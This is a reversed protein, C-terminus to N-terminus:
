GPPEMPFGWEDVDWRVLVRGAPWQDFYSSDATMETLCNNPTPPLSTVPTGAIDSATGGAPLPVLMIWSWGSQPSFQWQVNIHAKQLAM